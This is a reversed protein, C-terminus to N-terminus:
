RRLYLWNVHELLYGRFEDVSQFRRNERLFDFSRLYVDYEKSMDVARKNKISTLIFLVSRDFISLKPIRVQIRKDKNIYFQEVFRRREGNNILLILSEEMTFKIEDMKLNFWTYRPNLVIFKIKETADNFDSEEMYRRRMLVRLRRLAFYSSRRESNSYILIKDLLNYNTFNYIFRVAIIKESLSKIIFVNNEIEDLTNYINTLHQKTNQNIFNIRESIGNVIAYIIVDVIIFSAFVNNLNVEGEVEYSSYVFFVIFALIYIVIRLWRYNLGENMKLVNYYVKGKMDINSFKDILM